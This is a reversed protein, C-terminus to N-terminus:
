ASIPEATAGRAAPSGGRSFRMAGDELEGHNFLRFDRPYSQYVRWPVSDGQKPLAAIKRTVYGSSLDIFPLESKFAPPPVPEFRTYGGEKMHNVIRCLYDSVLDAKLTWSANTYGITYMFNPVGSLAVGKYAYTKDLELPEGNLTVDISGFTDILDLGTATVIVDAEIQEGSELEIGHENFSKIHDTVVSVDGHKIAKFFDGDPVVCLRQDWPDYPPNFHKDVDFGEPLQKAAMWRLLKNIQNPALRSLYYTGMFQGINKWRVVRYALKTPLHRRLFGAIKDISPMTLIYTPTRQLMTVHAARDSMAPVITVATAGSGIVVVEKGSYDFDEPWAQPHIVQGGFSEIGPFEPTYGAAYKYYGAASHVIRASVESQEGTEVNELTVLWRDDADSWAASLARTNFRIKERVNFEDATENIYERISAGDALTKEGLWPKFRFGFTFMDSDSRVGPYRFLDWTGGIQARAEVITFTTDPCDTTLQAGMGVGSLGAGIILVDVEEAM